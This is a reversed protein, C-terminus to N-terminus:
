YVIGRETVTLRGGKMMFIEPSRTNPGVWMEVDRGYDHIYDIDKGPNWKDSRYVIHKASGLLQMKPAPIEIEQTQRADRSAFREFLKAAGGDRSVNQLRSGHKLSCVWVAKLSPSWLFMWEDRKPAWIKEDDGKMWCLELCEGLWASPGPDPFFGGKFQNKSSRKKTPKAM